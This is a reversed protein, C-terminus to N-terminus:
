VIRVSWYLMEVRRATKFLSEEFGPTLTAVVVVNEEAFEPSEAEAFAEKWMKAWSYPSHGFRSRGMHDDISGAESLGQHRGFVVSGKKRKLLTVVRLAISYQTPEDFLHFLAGTYIHDVSAKLQDLTKVLHSPPAVPRPDFNIPAGFIDASFFHVPCSEADGFLKYGLDIFDLRLDVGFINLAPYGDYALKRVDTGTCCGLDLFLTDAARGSLVVDPYISNQAMFLNVFHFARICPYPHKASAQKQVELIRQKLEEDDPTIVAHLFEREEDSLKLLSPDLPQINNPGLQDVTLEQTVVPEQHAM